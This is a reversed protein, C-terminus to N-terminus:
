VLRRAFHPAMLGVFGITGAAAVTAGSLAVATILLLGRQYPVHSGLGRAVEEGLNLANLNRALLLALPVFVVIWPLLSWFDDWSRGYVSGALWILARQVAYLVGFTIM